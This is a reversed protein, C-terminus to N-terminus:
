FECKSHWTGKPDVPHFFYDDDVADNSVMVDTGPKVHVTLHRIGNVHWIHDFSCVVKDRVAGQCSIGQGLVYTVTWKHHKMPRGPGRDTKCDDFIAVELSKVPAEPMDRARALMGNMFMILFVASLGRTNM